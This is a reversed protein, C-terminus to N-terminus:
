PESGGLPRFSCYGFLCGNRMELCVWSLCQRDELDLNPTKCIVQFPWDCTPKRQLPCIELRTFHHVSSLLFAETYYSTPKSAVQLSGGTINGQVLWLAFSPSLIGVVFLRARRQITYPKTYFEQICLVSCSVFRALLFWCLGASEWAPQLCVADSRLCLGSM